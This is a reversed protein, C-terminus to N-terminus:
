HGILFVDLVLARVLGVLVIQDALLLGLVAARSSLVALTLLASILQAVLLLSATLGVVGPLLYRVDTLLLGAPSSVPPGYKESM